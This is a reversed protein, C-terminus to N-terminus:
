FLDMVSISFGIVRIFCAGYLSINDGLGYFVLSEDDYNKDDILM